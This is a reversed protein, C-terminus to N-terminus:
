ADQTFSDISDELLIKFHQAVAPWSETTFQCMQATVPKPQQQFLNPRGRQLALPRASQQPPKHPHLGGDATFLHWLIQQNSGGSDYIMAYTPLIAVESNQPVPPESHAPMGAMHVRVTIGSGRTCFSFRLVHQNAIASLPNRVWLEVASGTRYNGVPYIASSDVRRVGATLVGGQAIVEAATVLAQELWDLVGDRTANITEQQLTRALEAREKALQQDILKQKIGALRSLVQPNATVATATKEWEEVRLLEQMVETM